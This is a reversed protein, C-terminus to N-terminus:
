SYLLVRVSSVPRWVWLRTRLDRGPRRHRRGPSPPGGTQERREPRVSVRGDLRTNGPSKVSRAGRFVRCLHENSCCTKCAWAATCVAATGCVWGVVWTRESLQGALEKPAPVVKEWPRARLPEWLVERRSLM